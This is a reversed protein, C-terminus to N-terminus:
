YEFKDWDCKFYKGRCHYKDAKTLKLKKWNAEKCFKNFLMNIRKDELMLLLIRKLLRQKEKMDGIIEANELETLAMTLVELPKLYWRPRFIGFLWQLRFRYADDEQMIFCLMEKIPKVLESDKELTTMVRWLEKVFPVLKEPPVADYKVNDWFETLGTRLVEKIDAIVQERPVGDDLAYFSDNFIQNKIQHKLPSLSGFLSHGRPFGPFIEDEGEIDMMVSGDPQQVVRASAENSTRWYKVMPMTDPRKGLMKFIKRLFYRKIYYM